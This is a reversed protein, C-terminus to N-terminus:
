RIMVIADGIICIMQTLLDANLFISFLFCNIRTVNVTRHVIRDYGFEVHFIMKKKDNFYEQVM